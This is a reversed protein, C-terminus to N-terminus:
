LREALGDVKELAATVGKAQAIADSLADHETTSEPQIVDGLWLVTRVDRANRYSWPARAFGMKRYAVDLLVLDFDPGKAWLYYEDNRSPLWKAFKALGQAVPVYLGESALMEQAKKGQGQWWKLTEQSMTFGNMLSDFLNINVYFENFPSTGVAFECAGISLIAAGPSTDLTEIDVMFNRKTQM